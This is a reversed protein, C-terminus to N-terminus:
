HIEKALQGEEGLEFNVIDAKGHNFSNMAEGYKTKDKYMKALNGLERGYGPPPLLTAAAPPAQITTTVAPTTLIAPLRAKLIFNFRQSPNIQDQIEDKTWEHPKDEQVVKFLEKAM